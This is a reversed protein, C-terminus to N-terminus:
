GSKCFWHANNVPSLSIFNRIMWRCSEWKMQFNREKSILSARHIVLSSKNQDFLLFFAADAQLLHLLEQLSFILIEDLNASSGVLSAIRRLGEARQARQRSQQVLGANEIIPAAQNAIITLLRIENSSFPRPGDAHNSAQLYGLLRGSSTLPILVTERLSASQSLVALGLVEWQPDDFANESLVVDQDLMTQEMRSNTTIPARYVEMFQDPLGHFPARGELAHQYENYILFGLIEVPMLPLISDILRSFLTLPDRAASFAQALQALGALEASRNQENRFRLANNLATSAEAAIEQLLPIDNERFTEPSLAGLELTGLLNQGLLLPVGLFARFPAASREIALRLDPRTAVDTILLPQLSDALRSTLGENRQYREGTQIM